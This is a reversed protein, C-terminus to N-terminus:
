TPLYGLTHVAILLLVQDINGELGDERVESGVVQLVKVINEPSADM